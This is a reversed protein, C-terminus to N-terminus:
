GLFLKFVKEVDRWLVGMFAWIEEAIVEGLGLAKNLMHGVGKIITWLGELLPAIEILGWTVLLVIVTSWLLHFNFFFGGLTGDWQSFYSFFDYYSNFIGSVIRELLGWLHELLLEPHSLYSTARPAVIPQHNLLNGSVQYIPTDDRSEKIAIKNQDYAWTRDKSLAAANQQLLSKLPDSKWGLFSSM